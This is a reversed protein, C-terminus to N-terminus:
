QQHRDTVLLKDLVFMVCKMNAYSVKLLAFNGNAAAIHLANNGYRDSADMLNKM